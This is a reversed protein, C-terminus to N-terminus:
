RPDHAERWVHRWIRGHILLCVQTPSWHYERALAVQTVPVCKRNAWRALILRAIPETIRANYCQSGHNM